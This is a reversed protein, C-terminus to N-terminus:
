VACFCKRLMKTQCIQAAYEVAHKNRKYKEKVDEEQFAMGTSRLVNMHLYQGNATRAWLCAQFKVIAKTLKTNLAKLQGLSGGGSSTEYYAMKMQKTHQTGKHVRM